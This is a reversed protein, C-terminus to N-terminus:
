SNIEKWKRFQDKLLPYMQKYMEYRGGDDYAADPTFVRVSGVCADIAEKLDAFAGAGIGALMAAGLASADPEDLAAVTIGLIDAKLQNLQDSQAAGGTVIIREGTVGLTQLIQKLSFSVGEMISYAMLEADCGGSIGFFVGKADPDCVPCREGNLYPLFLPPKKERCAKIDVKGQWLRAAYDLSAGSSGTVGYRVYDVFYRGSVPPAYSLMSSTIGGIHESTGTIDFLDGVQHIGTGLLAAFYDNCGAYVSVGERLGTQQAAECTVTGALDTPLCLPPLIREDIGLEDLFYRSYKGTDLNALGRWSYIDSVMSGTLYRILLEKPMCVSELVPYAKKMYALRPLPYSVIDPHPMTIERIFTEQAYRAKIEHLESLGAADSWSIVDQENVVYTGVQASLAVADVCTLDIKRCARVLAALWGAPNKAEYPERAKEIRGDAHRVLLKVSSTGLDIGLTSKM